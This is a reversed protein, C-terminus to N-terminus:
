PCSVPGGCEVTLSGLPIVCGSATSATFALILAVLLKYKVGSM